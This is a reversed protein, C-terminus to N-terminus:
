FLCWERCHMDCTPLTMFLFYPSGLFAPFSATQVMCYLLCAGRFQCHWLAVVAPCISTYSIQQVRFSIEKWNRATLFIFTWCLWKVSAKINLSSKLTSKMLLNFSAEDCIKIEASRWQLCQVRFSILDLNLLHM